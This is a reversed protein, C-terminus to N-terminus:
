TSDVFKSTLNVLRGGQTIKMDSAYVDYIRISKEVQKSLKGKYEDVLLLYDLKLASEVTDLLESEYGPDDIWSGMSFRHQAIKEYLQSPNLEFKLEDIDIPKESWERYSKSLIIHAESNVPIWGINPILIRGPFTTKVSGYKFHEEHELGELDECVKDISSNAVLLKEVDGKLQDQSTFYAKYSKKPDKFWNKLGIKKLVRQNDHKGIEQLIEALLVNGDEYEAIESLIETFPREKKNNM